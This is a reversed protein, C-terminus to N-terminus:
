DNFGGKRYNRYQVMAENLIIISDNTITFTSDTENVAIDGVMSGMLCKLHEIRLGHMWLEKVAEKHTDVDIVPDNKTLGLWVATNDKKGGNFLDYVIGLPTRTVHTVITTKYLTMGKSLRDLIGYERKSLLQM